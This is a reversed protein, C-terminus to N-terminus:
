SFSILQRIIHAFVIIPEGTPRRSTREDDDSREEVEEESLEDDDLFGQLAEAILAKGIADASHGFLESGFDTSSDWGLSHDSQQLNGSNDDLGIDPVTMDDLILALGSRLLDEISGSPEIHGFSAGLSANKHHRVADRHSSRQEHSIAASKM